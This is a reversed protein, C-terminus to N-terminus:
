SGLGFDLGCIAPTYMFVLAGTLPGFLISSAITAGIMFGCAEGTTYGGGTIRSMEQRTISRM